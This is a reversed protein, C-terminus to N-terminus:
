HTQSQSSRSDIHDDEEDAHAPGSDYEEPHFDLNSEEYRKKAASDIPQSLSKSPSNDPLFLQDPEVM